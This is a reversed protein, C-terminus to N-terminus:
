RSRSSTGTATCRRSSSAGTSCRAGQGTEIFRELARTHADRPLAGPHDTEALSRGLAERRPGASPRRRRRTGPRSAGPERGDRRVRRARHRRDPPLAARVRAADGRRAQARTIDTAIACVAYPQAVVRRAAPVEGVPLHASRRRQDIVEEVELPVHERMVRLDNARMSAAVSPRSCSTTAAARPESARRHRVAGRLQPERAHLPRRLGERLDVAPTNDIIAQVRERSEVLAAEARKRATM